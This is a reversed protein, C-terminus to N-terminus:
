FYKEGVFYIVYAIFSFCYSWISLIVLFSYIILILYKNNPKFGKDYWNTFAYMLNWDLNAELDISFLCEGKVTKVVQKKCSEEVSSSSSPNM